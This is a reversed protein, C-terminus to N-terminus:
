EYKATNPQGECKQAFALYASISRKEPSLAYNLGCEGISPRCEVRQLFIHTKWSHMNRKEGERHTIDDKETHLPSQQCIDGSIKESQM